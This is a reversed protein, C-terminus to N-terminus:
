EGFGSEEFLLGSDGPDAPRTRTEIRQSAALIAPLIPPSWSDRIGTAHLEALAEIAEVPLTLYAALDEVTRGQGLRDAVEKALRVEVAALNAM